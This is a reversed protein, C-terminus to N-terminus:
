ATPSTIAWWVQLRYPSQSSSGPSPCQSLPGPGIPRLLRSVEAIPSLKVPNSQTIGALPM